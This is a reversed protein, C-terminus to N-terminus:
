RVLLGLDDGKLKADDVGTQFFGDPGASLLWGYPPGPSQLGALLVIYRHGWPDPRSVSMYPGKWGATRPENDTLFRSVHAGGRVSGCAREEGHAPAGDTYAFRRHGPWVGTDRQYNLIDAAVRRLDGLARARENAEVRSTVVPVTVGAALVLVSGLFAFQLAAAGRSGYRRTKM